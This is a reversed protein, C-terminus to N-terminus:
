TQQDQYDRSRVLSGMIKVHRVIVLARQISFKQRIMELETCIQRDRILVPIFNSLGSENEVNSHKPNQTKRTTFSKLSPAPPAIMTKMQSSSSLRGKLDSISKLGKQKESRIPLPHRAFAAYPNTGAGSWCGFEIMDAEGFTTFKLDRNVVLCYVKQKMLHANRVEVFTTFKLDRNVVLCHVVGIVGILWKTGNGTSRSVRALLKVATWYEKYLNNPEEWRALAALCRMRGAIATELKNKCLQKLKHKRNSISIKPSPSNRRKNEARFCSLVAKRWMKKLWSPVPAKLFSPSPTPTTSSTTMVSANSSSSLARDCRFHEFCDSRLLLAVHSSDM